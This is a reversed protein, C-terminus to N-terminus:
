EEILDALVEKVESKNKADQEEKWTDHSTILGSLALQIRLAGKEDFDMLANAWHSKLLKVFEQYIKENAFVIDWNIEEPDFAVHIIKDSM